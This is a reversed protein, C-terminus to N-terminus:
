HSHAAHPGAPMLELAAAPAPLDALRQGPKPVDAWNLQGQVCVQRVPWHLTGSANPLTAVLTFEDYHASALMHAENIATWRILAVDERLVQGHQTDPTALPAHVLELTWGAKPMPRARRVGAPVQVEVVRTPSAGCGHGIKFVAKYPKGASAVPHELTVHALASPPTLSLAAIACLAAMAPSFFSHFM